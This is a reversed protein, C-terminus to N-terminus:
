AGHQPLIPATLVARLGPRNDAYELAGSLQSVLAAMMRSGFGQSAGYKGRGRDSVILRFETRDQQLAIDIPGPGGGYAYKNANIVLETLILGLPVARDTPVSVPALDLSIQESWGAGMTDLMEGCLEDLYRSLDVTEVQDAQYLRRHVLAVAAIRRQAEDLSARLAADESARGQLRLFGTVLTLSNQVRHNVEKLLVEKQALLLDKDALTQTLQANLDRLRRAQRADLLARRLRGGVEIEAPSWGAARGRVTESWAEFSARPTLLAAPDQGVAKHPNGAWKVVELQEARFWLLILPEDLSVTVAMLGSGAERHALAPPFLTSLEDTAFTEVAAKPAVWGAIERVTQEPPCAGTTVVDGASLMAAGDAELM